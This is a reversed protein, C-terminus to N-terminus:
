RGILSFLIAVIVRGLLVYGVTAVVPSFDLPLRVRLQYLLRDLPRRFPRVLQDALNDIFTIAPHYLWSANRTGIRIYSLIVSAFIIFVIAQIGLQVLMAITLVISGM